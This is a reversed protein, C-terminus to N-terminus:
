DNNDGKLKVGLLEFATYFAENEHKLRINEEQLQKIEGTQKKIIIEREELQKQAKAKWEQLDTIQTMMVALQNRTEQLNIDSLEKDARLTVMEAKLKDIERQATATDSRADQLLEGYSVRENKLAVGMQKMTFQVAIFSILIAIGIVVVPNGLLELIKVM